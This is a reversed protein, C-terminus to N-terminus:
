VSLIEKDYLPSMARLKEVIPPLERLVTDIDEDTTGEGISLRLSGHAIEHPLGIALLVHSPDLSGSTCASGSSAAIGKLDLSLLLAEGEIYRFCMNINNPLRKERDGNLRAYPIEKLLGDILRDRMASLRANNENMKMVAREAAFGFGVIGPLNETGARRNREQAGGHILSPIHIGSRIYLAGVGQPGYIKHATITLLDINMSQVDINVAGLAQVADTHFLVDHKKAVVALEAIPEITGIENNAMMITVLITDSRIAKELQEASIFGYEDVPLYTIEYGSKELYQLTHLVAHHEINSTIIHKGKNSYKQAVGLIAMNDAESGGGTFVIEEPKEAGIVKQIKARAENLAKKAERGYFHVSSANGFHDHFYPTMKELIEPAVPTTAAYDMYVRKM